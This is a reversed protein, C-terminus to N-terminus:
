HPLHVRAWTGLRAPVRRRISLPVWSRWVDIPAIKPQTEASSGNAYVPSSDDAVEGWSQDAFETSPAEESQAAQHESRLHRPTTDHLLRDLCYGGGPYRLEHVESFDYFTPMVGLPMFHAVFSERTTNPDEIPTGCHMLDAHWILM